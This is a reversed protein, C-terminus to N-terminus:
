KAALVAEYGERFTPYQFVYGANRLKQSNLRKNANPNRSSPDPASLAEKPLSVDLRQALWRILTNVSIPEHDTGIYVSDPANLAMLFALAGVCDDLHIRNTYCSPDKALPKEGLRIEDALRTRGPGYIGSFRLITAPFPGNQLINEGKLLCPGALSRPQTPSTEDVWQGNTQAYVSTSSTLFVRKPKQGQQVLADLLNKVGNAYIACCAEHTRTKASATYFVFDLNKPLDKLTEPATLDAQIMTVNRVPVSSSAQKRIGWVRCGTTSLRQALATGVYGCGAILINSM